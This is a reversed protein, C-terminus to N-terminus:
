LPHAIPCPGLMLTAANSLQQINATPIVAGQVVSPQSQPAHTGSSAIYNVQQAINQEHPLYTLNPLIDGSLVTMACWRVYLQDLILIRRPPPDDDSQYTKLQQPATDRYMLGWKDKKRSLVSANPKRLYLDLRIVASLGRATPHFSAILVNTAMALITYREPNTLQSDSANLLIRNAGMGVRSLANLWILPANLCVLEEAPSPYAGGWCGQRPCKHSQKRASYDLQRQPCLASSLLSNPIQLRVGSQIFWDDYLLTSPKAPRGPCHTM